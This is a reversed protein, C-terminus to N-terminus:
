VGVIQPLQSPTLPRPQLFYGPSHVSAAAPIIRMDPPWKENKPPPPAVLFAAYVAAILPGASLFGMILSARSTNSLRNELNKFNDALVPNDESLGQAMLERKAKAITKKLLELMEKQSFYSIAMAVLYLLTSLLIIANLTAWGEGAKMEKVAFLVAVPITLSKAEMGGIVKELKEALEFHKAVAQEALKEPSNDALYIALGELLRLVFRDCAVLLYAFAREAPQDRLFDSLVSRFIESRTVRQDANGVFDAITKLQEQIVDHLDDPGFGPSIQMRRFRFFMLDHIDTEHDAQEKLLAWLRLSAHYNRVSPPANVLSSDDIFCFSATPGESVLLYQKPLKWTTSDITLLDRLDKAVVADDVVRPLRLTFETGPVFAGEVDNKFDENLKSDSIDHTYVALKDLGRLVDFQVANKTVKLRLSDLTLWDVIECDALVQQLSSLNM